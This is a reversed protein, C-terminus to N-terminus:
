LNLMGISVVLFNFRTVDNDKPSSESPKEHAAPAVDEVPIRTRHLHLPLLIYEQTPGKDKGSSGKGTIKGGRPDSGFAVFGGNYDEYDSLYAKNGTMHSSCGSDLVAHDQLFIEPNGLAQSSSENTPANSRGNDGYSRRGQNRGSRCDRAFHGKKKVRVTLMAVQWRLDLEELDDGDIQQFDKNEFQPSTTPQAFFSYAEWNIILKQCRDYAKYLSENSAITFNEFQHKLVNKQMKKSEENGGFLGSSEKVREQNRKAALQKATKPALPASTERTPAPEEELDRKVIVDWLNHERIISNKMNPNGCLSRSVVETPEM